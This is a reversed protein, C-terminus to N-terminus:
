RFELGQFTGSTRWREIFEFYASAGEPYGQGLWSGQPGPGQGENNYYGPTCDPSGIVSGPGSRLLAMWAEEADPEPEVEAFGGDLAHRVTVAITRAAEALNHPVNSILNAGQFPQVLFLNPFGLIHVGHLTRM